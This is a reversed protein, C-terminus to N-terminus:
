KMVSTRSYLYVETGEKQSIGIQVKEGSPWATVDAAVDTTLVMEEYAHIGSVAATRTGHVTWNGPDRLDVINDKVVNGEGDEIVLAAYDYDARRRNERKTYESVCPPTLSVLTLM